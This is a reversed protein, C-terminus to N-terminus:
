GTETRAIKVMQSRVPFSREREGHEIIITIFSSMIWAEGILSLKEM